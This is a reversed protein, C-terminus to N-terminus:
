TQDPIVSNTGSNERQELKGKVSIKFVLAVNNPLTDPLNIHLGENDRSFKVEGHGILEIKEIINQDSIDIDKSLSKILM